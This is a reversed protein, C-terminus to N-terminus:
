DVAEFAEPYFASASKLSTLSHPKLELGQFERCLYKCQVKAALGHQFGFRSYYAPDGLVLISSFGLARAREIGERILRQGIGRNQMEPLVAVPALSLSNLDRGEEVLAIKSFLAHGVIAGDQEAVISLGSVFADSDRILRVLRGEGTSKFARDHVAAISNRDEATETRIRFSEM